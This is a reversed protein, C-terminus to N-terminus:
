EGFEKILAKGEPSEKWARYDFGKLKRGEEWKAKRNAKDSEKKDEPTIAKIRNYQEKFAKNNKIAPNSEMEKLIADKQAQNEIKTISSYDEIKVDTTRDDKVETSVDEKNNPPTDNGEELSDEKYKIGLAKDWYKLEEKANRVDRELGAKVLPDNSTDNKLAAQAYELKNLALSRNKMNDDMRYAAQQEMQANALEKAHEQDKLKNYWARESDQYKNLLTSDNNVIYSSWGVQTKPQPVSEYNSQRAELQKKVDAIKKDLLAIEPYDYTRTYIPQEEVEESPVNYFANTYEIPNKSKAEQHAKLAKDEESLMQNWASKSKNGFKGDVIIQNDEDNYNNLESQLAKASKNGFIGDVDVGLISQLYKVQEKDKLNLGRLQDIEEQSLNDFVSPM